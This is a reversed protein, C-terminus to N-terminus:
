RYRPFFLVGLGGFELLDKRRSGCCLVMLILALILSEECLVKVSFAQGLRDTKRARVHVLAITRLLLVKCPLM